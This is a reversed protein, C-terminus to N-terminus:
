FPLPASTIGQVIIFPSAIVLGVVAGLSFLLLSGRLRMATLGLGMMFGIVYQMVFFGRFASTEGRGVFSFSVILNIVAWALLGLGIFFTTKSVPRVSEKKQEVTASDGAYRQEVVQRKTDGEIFPRFEPIPVGAAVDEGLTTMGLDRRRAAETLRAIMEERDAKETPTEPRRLRRGVLIGALGVVVGIIMAVLILAIVSAEDQVLRRGFFLGTGSTIYDLWWEGNLLAQATWSIYLSAAYGIALWGVVTWRKSNIVRRENRTIFGQLTRDLNDTVECPRRSLIAATLLLLVAGVVAAIVGVVNANIRDFFLTSANSIAGVIALIWMSRFRGIDSNGIVVALNVAWLVSALVLGATGFVATQDAISIGYGAVLIPSVFGLLFVTPPLVAIMTMRLFNARTSSQQITYTM